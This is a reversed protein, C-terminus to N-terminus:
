PRPRDSPVLCDLSDHESKPLLDFLELGTVEEIHRVSVIYDWPKGPLTTERNEMIFAIMEHAGNSEECLIAEYFHTPVAVSDPGIFTDPKKPHGEADLFLTGTIIWISGVSRALSRVQEELRGGMGRNLRAREPSM